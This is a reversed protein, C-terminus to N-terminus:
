ILRAPTVTLRPSWFLLLPTLPFRWAATTSRNGTHVAPERGRISPITPLLHSPLAQINMQPASLLSSRMSSCRMAQWTSCGHSSGRFSWADPAVLAPALPGRDQLPFGLNRHCLHQLNSGSVDADMNSPSSPYPNKDYILTAAAKALIFKEAARHADVPFSCYCEMAFYCAEGLRRIPHNSPGIIVERRRVGGARGQAAM